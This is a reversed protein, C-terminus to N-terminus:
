FSPIKKAQLNVNQPSQSQIGQKPRIQSCRNQGYRTQMGRTQNFRIQMYRFKNCRYQTYRIQATLILIIFADLQHNVVVVEQEFCVKNKQGLQPWSAVSHINMVVSFQLHALRIAARAVYGRQAALVQLLVTWQGQLVAGRLLWCRCCSQGQLMAGILLWCRCCSQGQLMSGILLWCRFCSQGQM